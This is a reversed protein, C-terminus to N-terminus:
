SAPIITRRKDPGRVVLKATSSVAYQSGFSGMVHVNAALPPLPMIDSGGTRPSSTNDAATESDKTSRAMAAVVEAAEEQRGCVCADDTM